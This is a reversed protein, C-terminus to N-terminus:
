VIQQPGVGLVLATWHNHASPRVLLLSFYSRTLVLLVVFLKVGKITTMTPWVIAVEQLARHKNILNHKPPAWCMFVYKSDGAKLYATKSDEIKLM